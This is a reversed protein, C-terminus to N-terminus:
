GRLINYTKSQCVILSRGNLKFPPNHNETENLFNEESLVLPVNKKDRLTRIKNGSNLM